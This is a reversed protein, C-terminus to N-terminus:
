SGISLLPLADSFRQPLFMSLSIRDPTSIYCNAAKSYSLTNTGRLASPSESHSPRVFFGSTEEENPVACRLVICM